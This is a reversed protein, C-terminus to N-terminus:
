EGGSLDSESVTSDNKRRQNGQVPLNEYYSKYETPIAPPKTEFLKLLGNFKDRQIPLKDHYLQEINNTNSSSAGIRRKCNLTRFEDDFNEKFRLIFPRSKSFNMWCMKQWSVTKHEEDKGRFMLKQEAHTKWDLFDENKVDHVIYPKDGKRRACKAITKWDQPWYAKGVRKFETSIASHMSDCEMESHGVVLFMLDINELHPIEQVATLCMGAVFKNLNQGGCRDSFCQIKTVTDPLSKFYTFLCTAIECSGRKGDVETWMFCDGQKSVVDYITFNFMKFRQKYFLANNTPDNPLLLVQQLDFNCSVTTGNSNAALQKSSRKEERARDKATLHALYTTEMSVKDSGPSNYAMCIRCQDKRPRYFGLNYDESFVKRYISSSAFPKGKEICENKYMSYMITINLESSLYKRQSKARCYHSEMVPFREIHSKVDGIIEPPTIKKAKKGRRDGFSTNQPTRRQMAVDVVGKRIGLTNIFMTKCVRIKGNDKPLFFLITCQRKSNEKTHWKKQKKETHNHIFDRKREYSSLEIYRRFILLREEHSLRESCKQRCTVPCPAKMNIGPVVKGRSSVYPEGHMRREKAVNRKWGKENRKRKRSKVITVPFEEMDQLETMQHPGSCLESDSSSTDSEPNYESHDPSYPEVDSDIHDINTYSCSPEAESLVGRRENSTHSSSQGSNPLPASGNTAAGNQASFNVTKM